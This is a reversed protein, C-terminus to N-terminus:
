IDHACIHVFPCPPLELCRLSRRVPAHGVELAYMAASKGFQDLLLPDASAALLVKAAEDQGTRMAIMLATPGLTVPQKNWTPCLPACHDNCDAGDALLRRVTAADGSAIAAFFANGKTTTGAMAM